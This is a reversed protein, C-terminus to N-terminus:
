FNKNFHSGCGLRAASTSSFYNSPFAPLIEARRPSKRAVQIIQFFVPMRWETYAFLFLIRLLFTVALVRLWSQRSRGLLLHPGLGAVEFRMARPYEACEAPDRTAVATSSRKAAVAPPCSLGKMHPPSASSAAVGPDRVRCDRAHIGRHNVRSFRWSSGARGRDGAPGASMERKCQRTSQKLTAEAAVVFERGTTFFSHLVFILQPFPHFVNDM